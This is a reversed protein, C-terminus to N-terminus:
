SFLEDIKEKIYKLEYAIKEVDYVEGQVTITYDKTSFFRFITTNENEFSNIDGICSDTIYLGPNQYLWDIVREDFHEFGNRVNRDKISFRSNVGLMSRISKRLEKETEKMPRAGWLFKSVNACSILFGQAYYWFAVIDAEFEQNLYKQMEDISYLGYACQRQIELLFFETAKDM